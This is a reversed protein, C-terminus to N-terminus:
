NRQSDYIVHVPSNNFKTEFRCFSTGRATKERYTCSCHCSFRFYFAWRWDKALLYHREPGWHIKAYTASPRPRLLTLLVLHLTRSGCACFCSSSCLEWAEPGNYVGTSSWLKCNASVSHQSHNNYGVNTSGKGSVEDGRGALKGCLFSTLM